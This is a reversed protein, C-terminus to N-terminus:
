WKSKRALFLTLWRLRFWQLGLEANGVALSARVAAFSLVMSPVNAMTAAKRRPNQAPLFSSHSWGLVTGATTLPRSHGSMMNVGDSVVTSLVVVMDEIKTSSAVGLQLRVNRLYFHRVGEILGDEIHKYLLQTFPSFLSLGWGSSALQPNEQIM